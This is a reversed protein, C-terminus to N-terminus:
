RFRLAKLIKLARTTFRAWAEDSMGWQATLKMWRQVSITQSETYKLLGESGHRRGVGSQGMGGMPSDISAYASGFAENINVTGTKIRLALNRAWAVNSSVIGANLGYDTDNM